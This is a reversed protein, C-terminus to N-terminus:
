RSRQREGASPPASPEPRLLKGKALGSFVVETANSDDVEVDISADPQPATSQGLRGWGADDVLPPVSESMQQPAGTAALAGAASERETGLALGVKAALADLVAILVENSTKSVVSEWGLAALLGRPTGDGSEHIRQVWASLDEKRLGEALVDTGRLQGGGSEITDLLWTADFLGLEYGTM